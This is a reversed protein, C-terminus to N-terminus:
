GLSAGRCFSILFEIVCMHICVTFLVCRRGALSSPVCSGVGSYSAIQLGGPQYYDYVKITALKLNKMPIVQELQLIFTQSEDNLKYLHFSILLSPSFSTMADEDERAQINEQM